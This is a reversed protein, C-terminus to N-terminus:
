REKNGGVFPPQLLQCVLDPIRQQDGSDPISPLHALIVQALLGALSHWEARAASGQTKSTQQVCSRFLWSVLILDFGELLCSLCVRM